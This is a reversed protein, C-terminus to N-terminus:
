ADLAERVRRLLERPTFPKALLPVGGPAEDALDPAYGSMLLARAGPWRARINKLAEPGSRHPM